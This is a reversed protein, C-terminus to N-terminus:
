SVIVNKYSAYIYMVNSASYLRKKKATKMKAAFMDARKLKLLIDLSTLDELSTLDLPRKEIKKRKQPPEQENSAKMKRKMENEVLKQSVEKAREPNTKVNDQQEQENSAMIQRTVPKEATKVPVKEIGGPNTKANDSKSFRKRHIALQM